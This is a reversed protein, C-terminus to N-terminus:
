LEPLCFFRRPMILSLKENYITALTKPTIEGFILILVTLIGTAVGAPISHFQEIVLATTLSSASLNVINNGILLTSIVKDFNETFKLVLSAKKNGNGAANKIRIRNVSMLAAETGSFYASGLVLLTLIIIQNSLSM